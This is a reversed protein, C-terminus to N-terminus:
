DKSNLSVISHIIWAEICAVHMGNGLLQRQQDATLVPPAGDTNAHAGRVLSPFPFRNALVGSDVGVGIEDFCAPHVFGMMLWLEPLSVTRQSVLDYLRTTQQLTQLTRIGFTPDCSAKQAINVLCVEKEFTTGDASCLGAKCAKLWHDEIYGWRSATVDIFRVDVVVHGELPLTSSSCTKARKNTDGVVQRCSDELLRGHMVLYAKPSLLLSRGFLVNFGLTAERMRDGHTGELHWYSYRRKRRPPLGLDVPSFTSGVVNSYCRRPSRPRVKGCLVKADAAAEFSFNCGDQERPCETEIRSASHGARLLAHCFVLDLM